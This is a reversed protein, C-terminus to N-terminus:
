RTSGNRTLRAALAALPTGAAPDAITTFLPKGRQVGRLGAQRM